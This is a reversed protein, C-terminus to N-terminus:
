LSVEFIDTTYFIVANIGCMQQFFMLGFSIIMAKKSSKRKFADLLSVKMEKSKALEAEIENIETQPNYDKGRLFQLSKIAENSKGKSILYLPTEPMFFFIAGFILPIIGCIISMVFVSLGAGIAYIFLIGVTLMLQFYSGLSGRIEKQAIEGTYMPATVCFAGGAIGLLVRGLIMMALNQAWILLIWGITFPIVLLLMTMKRGLINILIGIPICVSAAGLNM